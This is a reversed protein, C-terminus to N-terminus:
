GQFLLGCCFRLKDGSGCPCADYPTLRRLDCVSRLLKASRRRWLLFPDSDPVARTLLPVCQPSFIADVFHERMRELVEPPVAERLRANVSAVFEGGQDSHLLDLIEKRFQVGSNLERFELVRRFLTPNKVVIAGLDANFRGAVVYGAYDSASHRTPVIGYAVNALADSGFPMKAASVGLLRCIEADQVVMAVRLVPFVYWDPINSPLIADSLGISRRLQPSLLAGQALAPHSALVTDDFKITLAEISSVLANADDGAQFVNPLQKALIEALTRHVGPNSESQTTVNGLSGDQVNKVGEFIVTLDSTKWVFRFAKTELLTWFLDSGLDIYLKGIGYIPFYIKDFCLLAVVLDHLATSQMRPLEDQVFGSGISARGYDNGTSDSFTVTQSTQWNGVTFYDPLYIASTRSVEARACAEPVEANKTNLLSLAALAGRHDAFNSTLYKITRVSEPASCSSQDSTVLFHPGGGLLPSNGSNKKLLDLIYQDRLSYGLFIISATNLIQGLNGLFVSDQAIEHYDQDTWVSSDIEGSSGHLKYIFPSRSSIAKQVFEINSRSYSPVFGLNTELSVDVNTTIIQLPTIGKLLHLMRAYVPTVHRAILATSLLDFYRGCNVAKCLSFVLPLADEALAKAGARRDYSPELKLFERHLLEALESWTPYGAWRSAGAGIWLVVPRGSASVDRLDFLAALTEGESSSFM